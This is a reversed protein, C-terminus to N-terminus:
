ENIQDIQKYHSIGTYFSFIYDLCTIGFFIIQLTLRTTEKKIFSFLTTYSIVRNTSFNLNPVEFIFLIGFILSILGLFQIISFIFYKLKCNDLALLLTGIGLIPINLLISIIAKEKEEVNEFKKPNLKCCNKFIAIYLSILSNYLFFPLFIYYYDLRIFYIFLILLSTQYLGLFIYFRGKSAICFNGWGCGINCLFICLNCIWYDDIECFIFTPKVIHYNYNNNNQRRRANM